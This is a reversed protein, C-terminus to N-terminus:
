PVESPRCTIRHAIVDTAGFARAVTCGSAEASAQLHADTRESLQVVAFHAEGAERALGVIWDTYARYAGERRLAHWIHAPLSTDGGQLRTVVERTSEMPGSRPSLLGAIRLGSPADREVYYRLTPDFLMNPIVPIDKNRLLFDYLAATDQFVYDGTVTKRFQLAAGPLLVLALAALLWAPSGSGRLAGIVVSALAIATPALTFLLQRSSSLPYLGLLSLGLILVTLGFWIRVPTGGAGPLARRAQRGLDSLTRRGLLVLGGLLAGAGLIAFVPQGAVYLLRRVLSAPSGQLLEILMGNRYADPYNAIQLHTLPRFLGLYLLGWTASFLLVALAWHRREAGKARFLVVDAMIVVAVLMVSFSLFSLLLSLAVFLVPEVRGRLKLSLASQVVVLAALLEFVYHKIELAYRLTIPTLAVIALALLMVTLGRRAASLALCALCALTASLVALRMVPIDGGAIRWLGDLLILALPPAAQDHYPLVEFYRGWAQGLNALLQTEDQWLPRDAQLIGLVALFGLSIALAIGVVQGPAAAVREQAVAGAGAGERRYAM